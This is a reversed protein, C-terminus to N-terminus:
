TSDGSPSSPANENLTQAAVGFRIDNLRAQYLAVKEEWTLRDIEPSCALFFATTGRNIAGVPSM